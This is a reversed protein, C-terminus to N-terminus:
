AKNIAGDPMAVQEVDITVLGNAVGEIVVIAGQIQTWEAGTTPIVGHARQLYAVLALAQQRNM